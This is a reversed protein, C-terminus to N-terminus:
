APSAGKSQAYRETWARADSESQKLVPPINVAAAPDITVGLYDAIRAAAGAPDAVVDEYWIRLPEVALDGFMQEWAGAQLDIWQEATALAAESYEVRPGEGQEQEKRWVGSLTARAYSVAHAVRDRRELYVIHRGPMVAGLVAALLEPNEEHLEQLQMPFCKFGFVGNPSTRRRLVSQWLGAQNPPSGHAFFYPGDKDFNLYELPAGLCGTQWLVHSLYSSGTRPVTALMYTCSPAGGTLPFDFKGEYGTDVLDLM